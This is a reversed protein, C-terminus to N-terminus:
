EYLEFITEEKKNYKQCVHKIHIKKLDTYSIIVFNDIVIRAAEHKAKSLIYEYGKVEYTIKGVEFDPRYKRKRGAHEYEVIKDSRKIKIGHDLHWILFALEYSSQCYVGKYTGRKGRGTGIYNLARRQADKAYCKKSCLITQKIFWRGCVRCPKPNSHLDSWPGRRSQNNEKCRDSRRKREESTLLTNKLLLTERIKNKTKTTQLSGTNHFIASCSRSCFKPKQHKKGCTPCSKTLKLFSAEHIKLQGIAILRGSVKSVVKESVHRFVTTGYKECKRHHAYKATSTFQEKCDVCTYIRM